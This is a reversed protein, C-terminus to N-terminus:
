SPFFRFCFTPMTLPSCIFSSSSSKQLFGYLVAVHNEVHACKPTICEKYTQRCFQPRSRQWCLAGLLSQLIRPLCIVWHKLITSDCSCMIDGCLLTQRDWQGCYRSWMKNIALSSQQFSLLQDICCFGHVFDATMFHHCFLALFRLFDLIHVAAWLRAGRKLFAEPLNKGPRNSLFKLAATAVNERQELWVLLLLWCVFLSCSKSAACKHLILFFSIM